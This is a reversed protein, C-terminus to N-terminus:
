GRTSSKDRFVPQEARLFVQADLGSGFQHPEHDLVADSNLLAAPKAYRSKRKVEM